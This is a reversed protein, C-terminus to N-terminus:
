GPSDNSDEADESGKYEAEKDETGDNQTETGEFHGPVLVGNEMRAPVYVDGPMSDEATFRLALGAGLLTLAFVILMLMLNRVDGDDDEGAKRRARWRLWYILMVIPLLFLIVRILIVV